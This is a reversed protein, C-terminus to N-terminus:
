NVGENRGELFIAGIEDGAGCQFKWKEGVFDKDKKYNLVDIGKGKGGILFFRNSCRPIIIVV